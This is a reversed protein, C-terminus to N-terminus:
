IGRRRGVGGPWEDDRMWDHIGFGEEDEERVSWVGNGWQVMM